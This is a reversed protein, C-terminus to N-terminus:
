RPTDAPRRSFRRRRPTRKRRPTLHLTCFLHIHFSSSSSSPPRRALALPLSGVLFWVSYSSGPISALNLRLPHIWRSVDRSEGDRDRWRARALTKVRGERGDSKGNERMMWKERAGSAEECIKRGARERGRDKEREKLKLRRKASM